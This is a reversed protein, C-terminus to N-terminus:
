LMMCLLLDSTTSIAHFRGVPASLLHNFKFLFCWTVAFNLATMPIAFVAYPAPREDMGPTLSVLGDMAMTVFYDAPM